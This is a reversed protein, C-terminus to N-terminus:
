HLDQFLWFASSWSEVDHRDYRDVKQFKRPPSLAFIVMKLPSLHCLIVAFNWNPCSRVIPNPTVKGYVSLPSFTTRLIVVERKIPDEDFKCTVLVLGIEPCIPINVESNIAMSHHFLGYGITGEIKIPEEDFKCTVLVPMFDRHFKFELWIPINAKSNSGRLHRFFGM